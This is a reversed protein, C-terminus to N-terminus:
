SAEEADLHRVLQEAATNASAICAALGIGDYSAGALVVGPLHEDIEARIDAVRDLHGVTLQPLGQPWRQVRVLTPAVSLGTFERLDALLREVLERDDLRDVLDQGDRGASLRVLHLDGGGHQPWKASLSTMAKLLTGTTSPVLLGNAQLGPVGAVEQAPFGLLVTVTSSIRTQALTDAARPLVPQLLERAANAPVALVVADAETVGESTTLRYRRPRPASEGGGPAAEVTEVRAGLVVEVDVEALLRDVVERLGGRWSLFDMRPATRPPAPAFARPLAAVVKERRAPPLLRTVAGAVRRPLDGVKLPMLSRGQAAASVLTPTTARLSLQHVDGSHLGGLLPDVFRDVVQRGFRGAVFEGVAVDQGPGLQPASRLRAAVPEMGARLLGPLSMVRSALVPRLRTPGAPGVGAPLRRRGRPTWLYSEGARAVIREDFLGLEKLLAVGQPAMTHMAEAGLDVPVGPPPPDDQDSSTHGPRPRPIDVTLIQGGLRHDSEYLTVRHGALALRRATTLGTIGGGVVVVHRAQSGEM